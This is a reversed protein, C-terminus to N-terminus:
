AGDRWNAYNGGGSCDLEAVESRLMEPKKTNRKVLAVADNKDQLLKAVEAPTMGPYDSLLDWALLMRIMKRYGPPMDFTDTLATANTFQQNQLLTFTYAQDPVPWLTVTGNPYTQDYIAWEPLGPQTKLSILAYEAETHIEVEFDVGQLNVYATDIYPPRQAVVTGSPGITYQATGAVLPFATRLTTYVALNQISLADLVDNFKILADNAMDAPVTEGVAMAKITVLAETIVDLVVAM